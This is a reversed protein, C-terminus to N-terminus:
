SKARSRLLSNPIPFSDPPLLYTSSSGPIFVQARTQREPTLNLLRIEENTGLLYLYRESESEKPHYFLVGKGAAQVVKIGPKSFFSGENWIAKSDKTRLNDSGTVKSALAKLEFGLKKTRVGRVLGLIVVHEVGDSTAIDGDKVIALVRKVASEAVLRPGEGILFNIQEEYRHVLKPL